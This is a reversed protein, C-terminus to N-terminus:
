SIIWNLLIRKLPDRILNLLFLFVTKVFNFHLLECGQSLLDKLPNKKFLNEMM